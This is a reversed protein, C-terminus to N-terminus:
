ICTPHFFYEYRYTPLPAISPGIFKINRPVFSIVFKAFILFNVGVQVACFTNHDTGYLVYSLYIYKTHIRDDRLDVWRGVRVNSSGYGPPGNRSRHIGLIPTAKRFLVAFHREGAM